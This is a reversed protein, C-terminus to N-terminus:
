SVSRFVRLVSKRTPSYTKRLWPSAGDRGEVCNPTSPLAVAKHLYHPQSSNTAEWGADAPIRFGHSPTDPNDPYPDQPSVPARAEAGVDAADDDAADVSQVHETGVANVASPAYAEAHPVHYPHMLFARLLREADASLDKWTNRRTRTPTRAPSM